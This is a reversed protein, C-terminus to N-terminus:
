SGNLDAFDALERLVGCEADGKADVTVDLAWWVLTADGGCGIRRLVKVL